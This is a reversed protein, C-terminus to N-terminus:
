SFLRGEYDGGERLFEAVQRADPFSHLLKKSNSGGVQAQIDEVFLDPLDASYDIALGQPSSDDKRSGLLSVPLIKKTRVIESNKPELLGVHTVHSYLGLKISLM